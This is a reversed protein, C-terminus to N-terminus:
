RNDILLVHEKDEKIMTGECKKTKMLFLRKRKELYSCDFKRGDIQVSNDLKRGKQANIFFKVSEKSM